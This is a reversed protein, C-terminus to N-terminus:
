LNNKKSTIWKLQIEPAPYIKTYHGYHKNSKVLKDLKQLLSLYSHWYRTETNLLSVMKQTTEFQQQFNFGKEFIFHDAKKLSNHLPSILPSSRFRGGILKKLKQDTVYDLFYGKQLRIYDELLLIAIEDKSLESKKMFPISLLFITEGPNGPLAMHTLSLNNILLLKFRKELFGFRQFLNTLPRTLGYDPNEIDWRLKQINRVLWLESFFNWFHERKPYRYRAKKRRTRKKKIKNLQKTKEKVNKKLFDNELTKKINQFDIEHIKKEEKPKDTGMALLPILLFLIPAKAFKM